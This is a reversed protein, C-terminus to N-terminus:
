KSPFKNNSDFEPNLEPNFYRKYRANDRLLIEKTVSSDRLAARVNDDRGAGAGGSYLNTNCPYWLISSKIIRYALLPFNEVGHHSIQCMDSRLFDGYYMMLREAVNLGADGLFIMNMTDGSDEQNSSIRSVISTDNFYGTSGDIWLEDATFLIDMKANVFDFSMGTSVYCIKAGEFKKVDEFIKSAFYNGDGDLALAQAKAAPSILVYDIKVSALYRRSSKEFAEFCSYHDDHSHTILWARIHIDGDGKLNKLVM